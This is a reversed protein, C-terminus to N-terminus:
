SFYYKVLTNTQEISKVSAELVFYNYRPNDYRLLCKMKNKYGGPADGHNTDWLNWSHLCTYVQTVHM